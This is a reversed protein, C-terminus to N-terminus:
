DPRVHEGGGCSQFLCARATHQSGSSSGYVSSGERGGVDHRVEAGAGQDSVIQADSKVLLGRSGPPLRLAPELMQVERPSLLVVGQIGQGELMAARAQLQQVEADTTALLLSGNAQWELSAQLAGSSSTGGPQQQQQHQQHHGGAALQEWMAKSRHALAWSPSSPDRHAM